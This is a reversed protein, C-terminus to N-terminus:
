DHRMGMGADTVREPLGSLMGIIQHADVNARLIWVFVMGCECYQIGANNQVNIM